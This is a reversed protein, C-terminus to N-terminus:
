FPHNFVVNFNVPPLLRAPDDLGQREALFDPLVKDLCTVGTRRVLPVSAEVRFLQPTVGLIQLRATLGYGVHGYWSDKGFWGGYDDCRSSTATGAYLVGGIGRLYGLHLLNLAMNNIFQHRYEVQATALALGFVEDAAYGSLGGIGGVRALNRFEPDRRLPLVLEGSLLTAIVHDHALPWLQSWGTGFVLDMRHDGPGEDVRVTQRAGVSGFIQHGREPWWAFRTTDHGISLSEAIRVGGRPDLSGESLWSTDVFLGVRGRRRQQNRKRGFWQNAGWGVSLIEERNHGLLVRGTRRLDRRLSAEFAVFVAVANIRAIPTAANVFESAAISLGAGTYLFRFQPPKRDNFLPDVNDPDIATQVLRNRPDLRVSDIKERTKVEFVHTGAAPEAELTGGHPDLQGNWVLYHCGEDIQGDANNDLGDCRERGMKKETVLVQVPEIVTQEGIREITIRYSWGDAERKGDVGAVAYDVDPYPGLWQSFFWDLTHGYAQEAERRPDRSPDEFLADYFRGLREPGLTDALKEHIRRGTPLAHAYWLAHNRLAPKDEVGRFYTESFSAQQTYLFRDVAPVFTFNRLIDSAFEDRLARAQRWVELLAFAMAGHLWLDTSADHRGRVVLELMAEAFGRAIAEQHFKVFRKAPFLQLAQDSIVVVGPHSQAVESRLPGQIAVIKTGVPLPRGAEALLEALEAGIALAHGPVDRRLQLFTEDPVQGSPRWRPHWIEIEVGRAYTRERHWKPGWAVFPYPTLEGAGGAIVLEERPKREDDRLPEHGDESRPPDDVKAKPHALKAEVIEWHVPRVVYGDDPLYRGGQAPEAPLPAIAGALSCRRRVCGFPWFRHPVDIAYRLTVVQTGPQLALVVDDRPGDRRVTAGYAKQISTSGADFPGDVYGALATEELQVPDERMFATFDLLRLNEGAKAPRDLRYEVVGQVWAGRPGVRDGGPKREGARYITLWVRAQEVQPGADSAPGARAENSIGPWLLAFLLLWACVARTRLRWRVFWSIPEM